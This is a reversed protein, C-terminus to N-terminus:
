AAVMTFIETLATNGTADRAAVRCAYHEGNTLIRGGFPGSPGLLASYNGPQTVEMRLTGASPEDTQPYTDFLLVVDTIAASSSVQASVDLEGAPSPQTQTHSICCISLGSAGGREVHGVQVTKNAYYEMDGGQWAIVFLWVETGDPFPGIHTDFSGGGRRTMSGQGSGSQNFYTEYYLNVSVATSSSYDLSATVTLTDQGSPQEPSVTVSNIKLHGGPSGGLYNYGLVAIIIAVVVGTAAIALWKRKVSAPPEESSPEQYM